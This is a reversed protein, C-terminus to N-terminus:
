KNKLIYPSKFIILDNMFLFTIAYLMTKSNFNGVQKKIISYLDFITISHKKNLSKLILFGIYVSSLRVDQESSILSDNEIKM